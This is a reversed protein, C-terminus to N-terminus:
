NSDIQYLVPPVYKRGNTAVHSNRDDINYGRTLHMFIVCMAQGPRNRQHGSKDLRAGLGLLVLLHDPTQRTGATKDSRIHM